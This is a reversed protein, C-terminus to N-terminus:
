PYSRSDQCLLLPYGLQRTGVSSSCFLNLENLFISFNDHQASGYVIHLNWRFNSLRDRITAGISFEKIEHNEVELSDVKVGLLIGGSKGKAALWFWTFNAGGALECLEHDAFDHKVTEQLGVIDVKENFIYERV